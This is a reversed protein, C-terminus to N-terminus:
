SSLLVLPTHAGRGYPQHTRLPTNEKEIAELSLAVVRPSPRARTHARACDVRPRRLKECRLEFHFCV